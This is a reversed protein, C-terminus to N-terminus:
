AMGESSVNVVCANNQWLFAGILCTVKAVSCGCNQNIYMLREWCAGTSSAHYMFLIM